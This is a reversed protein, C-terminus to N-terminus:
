YWLEPYGSPRDWNLCVWGLFMLLLWLVVVTWFM